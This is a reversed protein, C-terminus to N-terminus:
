KKGEQHQRGYNTFLKEDFTIYVPDKEPTHSLVGDVYPTGSIFEVGDFWTADLYLLRSKYNLTVWAHNQGSVKRINSVGSLSKEQLRAILLASFDDCVGKLTDPKEYFCKAGIAPFNYNMDEAVSLFVEYIKNFGTDERNKKLIAQAIAMTGWDYGPFLSGLYNNKPKDRTIKWEKTTTKAPYFSTEGEVPTRDYSYATIMTMDGNPEFRIELGDVSFNVFKSQQWSSMDIAKDVCDDIRKYGSIQGWTYLIGTIEIPIDRYTNENVSSVTTPQQFVDEKVSTSMCGTILVAVLLLLATIFRKM